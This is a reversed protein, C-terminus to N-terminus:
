KRSMARSPLTRVVFVLCMRAVLFAIPFVAAGVAALLLTDMLDAM